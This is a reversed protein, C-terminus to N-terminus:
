KAELTKKDIKNTSYDYFDQLTNIVGDFDIFIVKM